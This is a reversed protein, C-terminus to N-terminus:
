PSGGGYLARLQGWTSARVPTDNLEDYLVIFASEAAYGFLSEVPVWSPFGFTASRVWAQQGNGQGASWAWIPPSCLNAVISVFYSTGALGEFTDSAVCYSYPEGATENFETTEVAHVVDGPSGGDNEYFTLTFSNPTIHDGYVEEGWWGVGVLRAGSMTFVFDDACEIRTPYCVDDDSLLPEGGTPLQFWEVDGECDFVDLVDAAAPGPMGVAVAMGGLWVLRAIQITRM